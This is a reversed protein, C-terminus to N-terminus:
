PEPTPSAEPTPEATTPTPAATTPTPAATTPTPARTPTPTPSPGYEFLGRIPRYRSTFLVERKFEKGNKNWIKYATALQGIHEDRVTVTVGPSVSPNYTQVPPSVELFGDHTSTMTITVGEELPRGYIQFVIAPKSYWSVIAIPYDTNNRFKFDPGKWSVTADLGIAVYSSPWSHPNREVIELDAMVVAHCLTTNPQCIGGGLEQILIGDKIGGAEQFGKAATREGIQGNFSFTEGPQIVLGNLMACILRINEDRPPNAERAYTRAESVKGLTGGLEAASMGTMVTDVVLPVAATYRGSALSASLAAMSADLDLRLGSQRETIKFQLTKVDFGTAVAGLPALDVEAAIIELEQLLRADDWTHHIQLKLPTKKLDEVQQLRALLQEKITGTGGATRGAQWAQTLATQWDSTLGAQEATLTWSLDGYTLVPAFVSQWAQEIQRLKQEAAAYTLGSVNLEDIWIGDYFVDRDLQARLATIEPDETPETTETPSETTPNTVIPRSLDLRSFAYYGGVSLTLIALLIIPVIWAHSKGNILRKQTSM